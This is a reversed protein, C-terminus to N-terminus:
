PSAEDGQKKAKREEGASLVARRHLAAAAKLIATPWTSPAERYGKGDQKKKGNWHSTSVFLPPFLSHRTIVKHRAERRQPAPHAPAPPPFRWKRCLLCGPRGGWQGRAMCPWQQGSGTVASAGHADSRHSLQFSSSRALNSRMKWFVTLYSTAPHEVSLSQDDTYSICVNDEQRDEKKIFYFIANKFIAQGNVLTSINHPHYQWSDDAKSYVM